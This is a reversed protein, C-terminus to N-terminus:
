RRLFIVGIEGAANISWEWECTNMDYRAGLPHHYREYNLAQKEEETFEIQLM